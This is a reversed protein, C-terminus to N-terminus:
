RYFEDAMRKVEARVDKGRHADAIMRAIEDMEREKMGMHTAEAVGIRGSIDIFIGQNEMRGCFEEADGPGMDLLVQHSRTFGKEPFKVPMGMEHLASALKRANRVIQSAYEKGHALMEELVIGLAAIRNAHPNDVLGIGRDFDFLLMEGLMEAKEESNTLALGGQPGPFTKHTSGIMVDAGEKLPQQFEGGAVLGLVHSADYVLTGYEKAIDLEKVPHPFLIASAGLMTVRPREERITKVAGEVSIEADRVPLPVFERDFKDYGLPYGGDEKSVAAIKEHCRTFAMMVALDCINGSLPTVFAHRANFVKRALNEVEEFIRSAFRSGGYWGTGYRGALDSSLADLAAPIIRNESAVLNLGSTRYREHQEILDSLM